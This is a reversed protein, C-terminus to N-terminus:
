KQCFQSMVRWVSIYGLVTPKSGKAETKKHKAQFFMLFQSALFLLIDVIDAMWKKLHM